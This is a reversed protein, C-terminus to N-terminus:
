KHHISSPKPAHHSSGSAGGTSTQNSNVVFETVKNEVNTLRQELIAVTQTLTDLQAIIQTLALNMKKSENMGSNANSHTKVAHPLPPSLGRNHDDANIIMNNHTDGTPNLVSRASSIPISEGGFVVSKAKSDYMSTQPPHNSNIVQRNHASIATTAVGASGSAGMRNEVEASGPNFVGRSHSGIAQSNEQNNEQNFYDTLNTKWYLLQNDAGGSAFYEGCHSFAVAVAKKPQHGHLTYILRGELLDFLKLTSDSSASILLNGSPHLCVSNVEDTHTQYHQLLKNIRIDWIKITSDSNGAAICTGSPHFMLSNVHCNAENFSHVCEKTSRDWIKITKDDSGSVLIRSDPAFRAVRVWNSHGSLSFQFKQRHVTFIKVTKDDSATCLLESDHSFDVSRVTSTHAKFSSSEGKITPVWLRVTKDRSASAVLQGNPSFRVDMVADEHGQYRFSRNQSQNQKLNWVILSSDYSGSAAQKGTPNFSISTITDKHARFFKELSPDSNDM